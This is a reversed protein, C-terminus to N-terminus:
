WDATLHSTHPTLHSAPFGSNCAVANATFPDSPQDTCYGGDDPQARGTLDGPATNSRGLDNYFQDQHNMGMGVLHSGEKHFEVEVVQTLSTLLLANYSPLALHWSKSSAPFIAV